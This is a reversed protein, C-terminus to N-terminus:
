CSCINRQFVIRLYVFQPFSSFWCLFVTIYFFQPSVSNYVIFFNYICIFYLPLRQNKKRDNLPVKCNTLLFKYTMLDLYEQCPTFHMLRRNISSKHSKDFWILNTKGLGKSCQLNFYLVHLKSTLIVGRSIIFFQFHEYRWKTVEHQSKSM